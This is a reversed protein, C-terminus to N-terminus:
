TDALERMENSKIFYVERCPIGYSGDNNKDDLRYRHMIKNWSCSDVSYRDTTTLNAPRREAHADYFIRRIKMQNSCGNVPEIGDIVFEAAWFFSRCDIPQNKAYPKVNPYLILKKQLVMFFDGMKSLKGRETFEPRTAFVFDGPMPGLVSNEPDLQDTLDVLSESEKGQSLARSIILHASKKLLPSDIDFYFLTAM